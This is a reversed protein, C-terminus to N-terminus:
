TLEHGCQPCSERLDYDAAMLARRVWPVKIYESDEVCDWDGDILHMAVASAIDIKQDEEANSEELAKVLGDFIATASCWGM